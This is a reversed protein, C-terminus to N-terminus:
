LINVDNDQKNLVATLLVEGGEAYKSRLLISLKQDDGARQYMRMELPTLHHKIEVQTLANIISIGSDINTM